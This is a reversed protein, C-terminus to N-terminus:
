KDRLFLSAFPIHSVYLYKLQRKWYKRESGGTRSIEMKIYKRQYRFNICVNILWYGVSIVFLLVIPIIIIIWTSENEYQM